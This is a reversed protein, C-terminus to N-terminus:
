CLCLVCVCVCVCVCLVCVFVSMVMRGFGGHIIILGGPYDSVQLM